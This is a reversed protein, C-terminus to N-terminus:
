ATRQGANRMYDSRVGTDKFIMYTSTSEMDIVGIEVEGTLELRIYWSVKLM